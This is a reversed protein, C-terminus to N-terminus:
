GKIKVLLRARSNVGLKKYINKIHTNLTHISIFCAECMEKYSLGDVLHSIIEKERLTLNLDASIKVTPENIFRLIRRSVSGSLPSKGEHVEKVSDLIRQPSDNKLLYGSAGAKIAQFIKDDDEFVTLVLVNVQSAVQKLTKIAEIGSKGPLDLDMIVVDPNSKLLPTFSNCNDSEYVLDIFDAASLNIKLFDKYRINDEIIATRIM